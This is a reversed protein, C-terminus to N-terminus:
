FLLPRLISGQLVGTTIQKTVSKFGNYVTYQHRTSLYNRLIDKEFGCIDYHNLKSLLITHKITDFATSLDMFNPISLKGSDVVKTLNNTWDNFM